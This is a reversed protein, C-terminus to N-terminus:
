VGIGPFPFALSILSCIGASPNVAPGGYLDGSLGLSSRGPEVPPMSFNFILDPRNNPYRRGGIIRKKQVILPRKQFDGRLAM